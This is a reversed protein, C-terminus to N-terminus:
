GNKDHTDRRMLSIIFSNIKNNPFNVTRSNEEKKGLIIAILGKFEQFMMIVKRTIKHEIIM